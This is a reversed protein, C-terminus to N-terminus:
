GIDLTLGLNILERVVLPDMTFAGIKFLYPFSIDGSIIRSCEKDPIKNALRICYDLHADNRTLRRAYSQLACALEYKGYYRKKWEHDYNRLFGLNDNEVAKEIWKSAIRSAEFAFRVGEGALPNAQLASDGVVILNKYSYRKLPPGTRLIGVNKELVKLKCRESVRKIKWMAKLGNEVKPFLNKCLTGFGVIATKSDMPFIWGYGELLSGGVFLDATHPDKKLPVVYEVGMASVVKQRVFGPENEFLAGSGSCDAFIRGFVQRNSGDRSYIINSIGRGDSYVKKLTSRYDIKLDANRRAQSELFSLLKKRDLVSWSGRKIAHENRSSIHCKNVPNVVEKPLSWEKMDTCSGCTNYQVDEANKKKDILLIRLDTGALERALSLGAPGAGVIILDYLEM